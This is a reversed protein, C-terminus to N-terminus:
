SDREVISDEAQLGMANLWSSDPQCIASKDSGPPLRVQAKVYVTSNGPIKANQVLHVLSTAPKSPEVGLGPTMLGLPIVVNTGLLCPEGSIGLDSLIYVTTRVTKGKWEFTLEVQVGIPIPRQSYDRLVVEPIKLAEGPIGAAKGIKRFMDFSLITASSGPDVLAEVTSGEITVQAYYLPGLSGSVMDVDGTARYTASMTNM